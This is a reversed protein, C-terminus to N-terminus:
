WSGGGGGGGGGGSFGGSFGSSFGSSSRTPTAALRFSSMSSSLSNALVLSNFRTLSYSSYWDPQKLNLNEFKKAWIKEVGFVIAYPLLREFMMQKDAQFELQRKQSSLFNKLSKAVNFANVGDLTKRPMVRGFVFAVFALILNFTLIALVSILYYDLRVSSPNKPFLGDTVTQEYLSKKIEEVEEYLHENKLRIEKKNKFFKELLLKEFTLLKDESLNKRVLWFDEKKREEIKLYGRRALDVITASIDKLDVTEDGLVGVEAPTLFRKGDPTKPPDYWATTIGITTKPDRGTKWWKYIIYIPLFVYWILILLGIAIKALKGFFSNWFSVIEKPEVYAIIDIPFGIVITMGENKGLLKLSNFTIKNKDQNIECNTESSGYAGIYCKGSIEEQKLQDPLIITVRTKEIVVKWDNGTVNWYLEDRDSFYTIAGSVQYNIIYTHVGTIKKNPDGIKLKIKEGEITKSFMYSKNNEDRVSFNSFDLKFKKGDSNTKIFPLTRFIGHKELQGFDYVITEKVEVLGDKKITILADFSKIHETTLNNSDISENFNILQNINVRDKEIDDVQALVPNFLFFFFLFIVFIKKM